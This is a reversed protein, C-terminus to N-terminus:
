FNIITSFVHLMAASRNSKWTHVVECDVIGHYLAQDDLFDFMYKVASPLINGRTTVSFLTEFLDDVYVQLTGQQCCVMVAKVTSLM